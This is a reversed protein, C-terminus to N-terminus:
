GVERHPEQDRSDDPVHRPQGGPFPRERDPKEVGEHDKRPGHVSLEVRAHQVRGPHARRALQRARTPDASAACRRWGPALPRTRRRDSHRLSQRAARRHCRGCPMGARYFSAPSAPAVPAAAPIPADSAEKTKAAEAAKLRQELAQLRAEYSERLQRLQERIEAVEADSAAHLPPSLTLALAVAVARPVRFSHAM